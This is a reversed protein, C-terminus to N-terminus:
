AGQLIEAQLPTSPAWGAHWMESSSLCLVPSTAARPTSGTWIHEGTGWTGDKMGGDLGPAGGGGVKKRCKQM